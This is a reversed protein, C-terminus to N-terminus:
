NPLLYSATPAHNLSALDGIRVPFIMANTLIITRHGVTGVAVM